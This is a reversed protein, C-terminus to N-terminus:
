TRTWTRGFIDYIHDSLSGDDSPHPAARVVDWRKTALLESLYHDLELHYIAHRAFIRQIPARYHRLRWVDVTGIPEEVAGTSSDAAFSTTIVLM